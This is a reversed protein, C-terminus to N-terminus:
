QRSKMEPSQKWAPIAYNHLNFILIFLLLHCFSITSPGWKNYADQASVQLWPTAPATEETCGFMKTARSETVTGLRINSQQYFFRKHAEEVSLRQSYKCLNKQPQSDKWNNAYARKIRPRRNRLQFESGGSYKANRQLSPPVHSSIKDKIRSSSSRTIHPKSQHNEQKM